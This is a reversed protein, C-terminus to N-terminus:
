TTVLDDHDVTATAVAGKALQVAQDVQRKGALAATCRLQIRAKVTRGTFDDQEQVGVRNKRRKRVFVDLRGKCPRPANPAAKVHM